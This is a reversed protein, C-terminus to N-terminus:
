QSGSEGISDRLKRMREAHRERETQAVLDPIADVLDEFRGNILTIRKDGSDALRRLIKFYSNDVRMPATLSVIKNNGALSHDDLFAVDCIILKLSMNAELAALIPNSIHDDNFGFGSVILATDPERLSMQLAGMMDLYPVDFAEQYKSDRPYILV